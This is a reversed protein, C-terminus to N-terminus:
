CLMNAWNIKCDLPTFGDNNRINENAGFRILEQYSEMDGNLAVVHLPTFGDNDKANIDAGSRILEQLIESRDATLHLPTFGNNDKVNVNAGAKILEQLVELRRNYTGYMLSHLPSSGSNDKINVDANAGILERLVELRKEANINPAAQLPSRAGDKIVYHLLTNGKNDRVNVDYNTKSLLPRLHDLNGERAAAMVSKGWAEEEAQQKRVEEEAQQKRAEEEEEAEKAKVAAFANQRKSEAIAQDKFWSECHSKIEEPSYLSSFYESNSARCYYDRNRESIPLPPRNTDYILSLIAYLFLSSFLLLPALIVGSASWYLFPNNKTENRKMCVSLVLPSVILGIPGGVLGAVTAVM